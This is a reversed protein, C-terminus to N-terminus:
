TALAETLISLSGPQRQCRDRISFYFYEWPGRLLEYKRFEYTARFDKGRLLLNRSGRFVVGMVRGGGAARFINFSESAIAWSSYFHIM